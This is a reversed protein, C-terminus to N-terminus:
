LFIKSIAIAILVVGSLWSLDLTTKKHTLKEGIRHGSIFLIIDTLLSFAIVALCFIISVNYVSAGLGVAISDVSLAFSLALTEGWSIQRPALRSPKRSFIKILGIIILATVSIFVTVEPSIVQSIAYGFFLALGLFTSGIINLVFIHLFPVRIRATGYAFGSALTDVSVAIALMLATIIM